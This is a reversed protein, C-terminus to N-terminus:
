ECMCTDKKIHLNQINENKCIVDDFVINHLNPAVSGFM